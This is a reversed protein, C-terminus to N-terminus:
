TDPDNTIICVDLLFLLSCPFCLPLVATAEPIDVPNDVCLRRLVSNRKEPTSASSEASFGVTPSLVRRHRHCAPPIIISVRFHGPSLAPTLNGHPQLQCGGSPNGVPLALFARKSDALSPFLIAFVYSHIIMAFYWVFSWAAPVSDTGATPIM